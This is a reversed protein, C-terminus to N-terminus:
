RNRENSQAGPYVCSNNLNAPIWYKKFLGYRVPEPKTILADQEATVKAGIWYMLISILFAGLLAIKVEIHTVWYKAM